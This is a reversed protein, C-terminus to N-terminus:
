VKAENNIVKMTVNYLAEEPYDCFASELAKDVTANTLNTSIVTAIIAKFGGKKHAGLVVHYGKDQLKPVAYHYLLNLDPTSPIMAEIEWENDAYNFYRRRYVVLGGSMHHAFEVGDKGFVWTWFKKLEEEKIDDM